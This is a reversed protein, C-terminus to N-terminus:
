CAGGGPRAHPGGSPLGDACAAREAAAVAHAAREALQTYLSSQWYESRTRTSWCRADAALEGAITPKTDLEDGLLGVRRTTASRRSRSTSRIRARRADRVRDYVVNSFVHSDVTYRQGFFAFSASSRCRPRVAPRDVCSRARSASSATVRGRHDGARHADDDVGALGSPTRRAGRAARRAAPLTMYDHEGVFAGITRRDVALRRLRAADLLERLALAAELQRRRFM